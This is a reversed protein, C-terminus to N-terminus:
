SSTTMKMPWPASRGSYQENENRGIADRFKDTLSMAAYLASL